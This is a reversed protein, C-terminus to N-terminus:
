CFLSCFTLIFKYNFHNHISQYKNVDIMQDTPFYLFSLLFELLLIKLLHFEKNTKKM